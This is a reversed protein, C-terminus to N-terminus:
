DSDEDERQNTEEEGAEEKPLLARRTDYDKALDIPKKGEKNQDDISAGAAVLVEVTDTHNRWAAKHLPTELSNDKTNVKAGLRLLLEVTSTNGTRAAQHLATEGLSDSVGVTVQYSADGLYEEIVSDEGKRAASLFRAVNVAREEADGMITTTIV